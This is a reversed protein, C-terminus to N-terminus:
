FIEGRLQASEERARALAQETLHLRRAMPLVLLAATGLLITSVAILAMTHRDVMGTEAPPPVPGIILARADDRIAVTFVPDGDLDVRPLLGEVRELRVPAGFHAALQAAVAERQGVPAASVRDVALGLGAQYRNLLMSERVVDDGTVIRHHAESAVWVGLILAILARVLLSSAGTM